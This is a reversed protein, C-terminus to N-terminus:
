WCFDDQFPSDHAPLGKLTTKLINLVRDYDGSAVTPMRMPTEDDQNRKVVLFVEDCLAELMPTLPEFHPHVFQELLDKLGGPGLASNRFFGIGYATVNEGVEELNDMKGLWHGFPHQPDARQGNIHRQGPGKFMTCIYLLVWFLSELDHKESHQVKAFGATLLQISM